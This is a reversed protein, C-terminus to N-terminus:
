SGSSGTGPSGAQFPRPNRPQWPPLGPRQVRLIRHHAHLLLGDLQQLFDLRHKGHCFLTCVPPNRTHAPPSLWCRGTKRPKPLSASLSPKPACSTASNISFRYRFARLYRQHTLVQFGMGFPCDILGELSSCTECKHLLEPIFFHCFVLHKKAFRQASKYSTQELLARLIM